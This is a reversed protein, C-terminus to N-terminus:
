TTWLRTLEDRVAVESVVRWPMSAIKIGAGGVSYSVFLRCGGLALTPYHVLRGPVLARDLKVAAVSWTDGDDGSVSLVLRGRAVGGKLAGCGPAGISRCFTILWLM